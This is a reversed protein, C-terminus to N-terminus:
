LVEGTLYDAIRLAHAAITLTPNTAGSSPFFSADAIFLNAVDHTRGFVDVVGDTPAASMRCTGCQHNVVGLPMPVRYFEDFGQKRLAAELLDMLKGHAGRNTWTYHLRIRGDDTLDVRNEYLPLDEGQVWWDVSHAAIRDYEEDSYAGDPLDQKIQWGAHKGMLHVHGLPITDFESGDKAGFYFDNIALTKQFRTPNPTQSAVTYFKSTVHRMFHRGVRGSTNALGNPHASNASRFLLAPTQIAGAALVYVDATYRVTEGGVTVDIGTVETGSANTLVKTALADTVLDVNDNAAAPIVTATEADMKLHLMDPYGDFAARGMAGFVERLVFEGGGPNAESFKVGMPLDLPQLGATRLGEAVEGIRPDHAIAPHPYPGGAPPEFPDSGRSGHVHYIAEAQDYYPAYDDYSLPWAPSLGDEHQMATFDEPRLRLLASGYVKTNGGLWYFMGPRFDEGTHGDVWQEDSKYRGEVFLKVPDWNERERPLSGRRNLVRISKGAPALAYALAGGGVGAGIILVDSHTATM